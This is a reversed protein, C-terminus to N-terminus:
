KKTVKIKNKKPFTLTEKTTTEITDEIFLSFMKNKLTLIRTVSENIRDESVENNLVAEKLYNFAEIYNEPLLIIDVGANIAKVLADKTEYYETIAGMEFSDSIIIGKYGLENRLKDTLLEYSLTAPDDNGTINPTSIHGVMVMETDKAIGYEFPILEAEKLEDWTKYTYVRSLHSDSSTDGHGPFHKICTAIGVDHFGAIAMNVMKAATYPDSGFARDGIVKNNPNTNIDAVPAFDLDIGYGKLYSGIMYGLEYAKDGNGSQAIKENSEFRAVEFNSNNAIRSVSGGEEDIAIIPTINNLDHISATLKTLQDEDVINRSFLAIGGAPYNKYTEIMDESIDSHSIEKGSEKDSIYNSDLM